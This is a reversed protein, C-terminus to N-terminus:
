PNSPSTVDLAYLKSGSASTQEYVLGMAGSIVVRELEADFYLYVEQGNANTGLVVRPVKISDATVQVKNATTASM